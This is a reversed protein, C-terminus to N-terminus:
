NRKWVTINLQTSNVMVVTWKKPLGVSAWAILECDRVSILTPGFSPQAGFFQHKQLTTSSFVRLLGRSLLCILGTLELPFWGQINMPLVSASAGISQVGSTFLWSMPFSGSAPFSQLFSFFHCCLILHNHSRMSEISMLQGFKPLYHLIPFGPVSCDMTDCLTPCLQAISCCCYCCTSTNM